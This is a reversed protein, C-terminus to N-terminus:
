DRSQGRLHLFGQRSQSHDLRIRERRRQEHRRLGTEEVIRTERQDMYLIRGLARRSRAHHLRRSFRAPAVRSRDATRSGLLLGAVVVSPGFGSAESCRRYMAATRESSQRGCLKGRRTAQVTHHCLEGEDMLYDYRDFGDHWTTKEGEFPVYTDGAGVARPNWSGASFVSLAFLTFASFTPKM